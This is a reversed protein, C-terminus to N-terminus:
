PGSGALSPGSSSRRRPPITRSGARVELRSGGLGELVRGTPLARSRRKYNYLAELGNAVSTRDLNAEEGEAAGDYWLAGWPLGDAGVIRTAAWSKFDDVEAGDDPRLAVASVSVSLRAVKDAAPGSM